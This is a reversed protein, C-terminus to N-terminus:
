APDDKKAPHRIYIDIVYKGFREELLTWGLGLYFARLSPIAYLYVQPHGQGFMTSVAREVLAKALGARRFEPDVWLAAVWPTLEPREDLDSAIATVTGAFVGDSVAVLTFPFDTAAVVESLEQEVEALPEGNPESWARWIRDAVEPFFQRADRLNVIDLTM